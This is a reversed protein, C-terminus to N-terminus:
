FIWPLEEHGFDRFDGFRGGLFALPSGSRHRSATVRGFFVDHDGIVHHEFLACEAQSLAGHVVPIGQPTEEFEGGEFREGGRVAFRRAIAEQKGGLVSVGFRGSERLADGTRTDFNLALMLIPPELSISQLSSITGGHYEGAEDVTTVVAVGTLWRGMTRRMGPGDPDIGWPGLRSSMSSTDPVGM